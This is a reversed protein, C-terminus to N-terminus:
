AVVGDARRAASPLRPVVAGAEAVRAGGLGRRATVPTVSVM